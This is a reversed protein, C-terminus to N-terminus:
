WMRSGKNKEGRRRGHKADRIGKRIVGELEEQVENRDEKKGRGDKEDRIEKRGVGRGSRSVRKVEKEGRVGGDLRGERRGANWSEDDGERREQRAGGVGGAEAGSCWSQKENKGVTTRRGLAFTVEKM